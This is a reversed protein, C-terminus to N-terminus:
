WNAPCAPAHRRVNSLKPAAPAAAVNSCAAPKTGTYAACVAQLLNDCGNETCYTGAGPAAPLPSMILLLAFM